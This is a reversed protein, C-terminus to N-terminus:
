RDPGPFPSPRSPRPRNLFDEVAQVHEETEWLRACTRAERRVLQDRPEGERTADALEMYAQIVGLPRRTFSQVFRRVSPLFEAFPVVETIWGWEYLRRADVREGSLLLYLARNRPLQELLRSGGGWGTTIGLGSQIFGFRAQDSAIRFDCAAAIECGGGVAIGQVAAVTPKGFTRLEELLNGMRHHVPFVEDATKLRHFEELDGGSVFTQEDGALVLAKVSDDERMGGLVEALEEMMRFNVANRVEPRHFFIWGIGQQIETRLTEM